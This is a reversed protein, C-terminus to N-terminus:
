PTTRGQEELWREHKKFHGADRDVFVGTGKALVTDTGAMRIEAAIYWRSGERREVWASGDLPVEVPIPKLYEVAIKATVAFGGQAIPVVGMLEDMVAATWGGHAIRPAGQQERPCSLQYLNRGDELPKMAVIGNRCRGLPTCGVCLTYGTDSVGWVDNVNTTM